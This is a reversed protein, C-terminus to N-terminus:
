KKAKKMIAMLESVAKEHRENERDLSEQVDQRTPFELQDAGYLASMSRYRGLARVWNYERYHTLYRDGLRNDVVVIPDGDKLSEIEEKTM